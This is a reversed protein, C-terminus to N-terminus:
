RRSKKRAKKQLKRLQKRKGPDLVKKRPGAAGPGGMGLGPLLGALGGGGGDAVAAELLENALNAMMPNDLGGTSVAERLRKAM